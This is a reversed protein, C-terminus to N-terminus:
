FLPDHTADFELREMAQAADAPCLFRHGIVWGDTSLWKRTHAALEPAPLLLDTPEDADPNDYQFHEGCQDCALAYLTVPFWAM